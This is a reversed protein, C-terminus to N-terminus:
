KKNAYKTYQLEEKLLMLNYAIHHTLNNTECFEISDSLEDPLEIDFEEELNKIEEDYMYNLIIHLNDINFM